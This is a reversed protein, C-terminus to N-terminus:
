KIRRLANIMNQMRNGAASNLSENEPKADKTKPSDAYLDDVFNTQSSIQSVESKSNRAPMCHSQHTYFDDVFVPQIDIQMRESKSNITKLRDASFDNIFRTQSEAQVIDNFTVWKKPGCSKTKLSSRIVATDLPPNNVPTALSDTKPVTKRGGPTVPDNGVTSANQSVPSAENMIIVTSDVGSGDNNPNVNEYDVTGVNPETNEALDSEQEVAYSPKFKRTVIESDTGTEPNLESPYTFSNKRPTPFNSIENMHASVKPTNTSEAFPKLPIVTDNQSSDISSKESNVLPLGGIPSDKPLTSNDYSRSVTCNEPNKMPVSHRLSIRNRKPKTLGCLKKATMKNEEGNQRKVPLANPALIRGSIDKVKYM